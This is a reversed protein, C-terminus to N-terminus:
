LNIQGTMCFLLRNNSINKFRTRDIKFASGLNEFFKWMEFVFSIQKSSRSPVYMTQSVRFTATNKLCNVVTNLVDEINISFIKQVRVLLFHICTFQQNPFGCMNFSSYREISSKKRFNIKTLFDVVKEEIFFSTWFPTYTQLHTLVREGINSSSNYTLSIEFM